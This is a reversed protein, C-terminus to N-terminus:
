SYAGLQLSCHQYTGWKTIHQFFFCFKMPNCRRKIHMKLSGPLLQTHTDLDLLKLVHVSVLLEVVSSTWFRRMGGVEKRKAKRPFAGLFVGGEAGLYSQRKWFTANISDDLVRGRLGAEKGQCFTKLNM